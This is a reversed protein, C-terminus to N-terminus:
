AAGLSLDCGIRMLGREMRAWVDLADLTPNLWDTLACYHSDSPPRHHDAHHKPSQIVGTEQMVRVFKPATKAAHTWTHVITSIAGGITAFVLVVSLGILWWWLAGVVLAGIIAAANRDAFSKDLFALRDRHHVRNPTIIHKGIIPWSERACREEWWHFIGTALDAILWGIVAQGILEAFTM